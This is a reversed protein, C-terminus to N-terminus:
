DLASLCLKSCIPVSLGLHPSSPVPSSGPVSQSSSCRKATSVFLGLCLSNFLSLSVHGSWCFCLCPFLFHCNCLCKSFARLCCNWLSLHGKFCKILTILLCSSVLFVCHCLCICLCLCQCLCICKSFEM